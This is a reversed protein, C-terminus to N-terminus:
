DQEEVAAGGRATLMAWLARAAPNVPGSALTQAGVVWTWHGDEITLRRLRPRLRALAEPIVAVGLGAEVLDLLTDTDNVELDVRPELGAAHFARTALLAVGWDAPFGVQPREVVQALAIAGDPGLGPDSTCAVLPSDALPLAVVGPSAEAVVPALIVDVAGDLLLRYQETAGAHVLRVTIGPFEARYRALIGALDFLRGAQTVGLTLTGRRVGEVAAVAETAAAASALTRRAEPLLAAGAPTLDVRRTSRVFLLARLEAELTRVTASLGSQALHLRTAARTFNREEAVAVFAELQRLEM